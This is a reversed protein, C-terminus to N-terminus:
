MSKKSVATVLEPNGTLWQVFCKTIEETVACNAWHGVHKLESLNELSFNNISTGTISEMFAAIREIYQNM